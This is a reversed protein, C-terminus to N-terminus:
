FRKAGDAAPYDYELTIPRGTQFVTRLNEDWSEALERPIGGQINTRGLLAPRSVGMEREIAANAYTQRLERDYRTIVEPLADALMEFERQSQRLRSESARLALESQKRDTIDRAIALVSEVEGDAGREPVMRSEYYRPGANTSYTIEIDQERGTAF